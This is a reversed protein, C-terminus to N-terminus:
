CGGVMSPLDGLSTTAGGSSSGSKVSPSMSSSSTAAVVPGKSLGLLQVTQIAVTVLLLGILVVVLIEKREM